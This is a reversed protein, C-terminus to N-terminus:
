FKYEDTTPIEVWKKNQYQYTKYYGDKNDLYDFRVTVIRKKYNYFKLYLLDYNKKDINNILVLDKIFYPFYYIKKRITIRQNQKEIIEAIKQEKVLKVLEIFDSKLTNDTIFQISSYESYRAPILNKKLRKKLFEINLKNWFNTQNYNPNLWFKSVYECEGIQEDYPNIIKKDEVLFVLNKNSLRRKDIDNVINKYLKSYDIYKSELLVQKYESLHKEYGCTTDRIKQGFGLLFLFLLLFSLPTKM